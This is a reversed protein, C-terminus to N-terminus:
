RHPLAKMIADIDKVAEMNQGQTEIGVAPAPEARLVHQSRRQQGALKSRAPLLARHGAQLCRPQLTAM